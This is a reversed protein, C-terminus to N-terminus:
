IHILSLDYTVGDFTYNEDKLKKFFMGRMSQMIRENYAIMDARQRDSIPQSTPENITVAGHQTVNAGAHLLFRGYAARCLFPKVYQQLVAKLETAPSSLAEIFNTPCFPKLDFEEAEKIFQRVIRDEINISFTSIEAAIDIKTIIM